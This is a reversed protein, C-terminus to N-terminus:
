SECMDNILDDINKTRIHKENLLSLLTTNTIKKHPIRLFQEDSIDVEWHLKIMDKIDKRTSEGIRYPKLRFDRFLAPSLGEPSTNSTFIIIIGPM